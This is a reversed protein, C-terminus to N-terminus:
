TDTQDLRSETPEIIGSIHLPGLLVTVGEDDAVSVRAGNPTVWIHDLSPVRYERGDSTRISFPM